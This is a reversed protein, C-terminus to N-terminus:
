FLIVKNKFMFEDDEILQGLKLGDGADTRQPGQALCM